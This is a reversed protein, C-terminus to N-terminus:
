NRTVVEKRSPSRKAGIDAIYDEAGLYVGEIRPDATLIEKLNLIGKASEIGLFLKFYTYKINAL